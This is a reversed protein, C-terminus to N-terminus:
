RFLRMENIKSILHYVNTEKLFFIKKKFENLLLKNEKEFKTLKLKKREALDKRFQKGKM